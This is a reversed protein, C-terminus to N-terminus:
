IMGRGALKFWNWALSVVVELVLVITFWRRLRGNTKVIQIGYAAFLMLMPWIPMHFRGSQAFNSLVLVGLYGVTYAIIFVHRRWEGSILMMLMVIIVFFSFINKIYAGGSLQIQLMQNSEAQNFTPFPITFILPAFVAASAYEAFKNGHVREARWKMNLEQQNTSQATAFMMETKERLSDGVGVLLTAIVLIGAIIKKGIPLMRNSVFVIHAFLALFAAVGLAARMFMLVMGALLGLWMDKLNLRNTSLAKDIEDVFLCCFFVMEAEKFMNGCWYIMNPNIAVFIAAMRATGEGFHRKAVHYICIACYSNVLCKVLFPMFIDNDMGWIAYGIALWMPYATDDIAAEDRIMIEAFSYQSNGTLWETIDKAFTMYWDTDAPDGYTNGWHEPNFVFYCYLIWILRFVFGVIFVNRLFEKEKVQSWRKSMAMGGYFFLVVSIAAVIWLEFAPEYGFAMWCAFMAVFFFLISKGTIWNPVVKAGKMVPAVAKDM